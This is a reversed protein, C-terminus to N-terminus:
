KTIYLTVSDNRRLVIQLRTLLINIVGGKSPIRTVAGNSTILNPTHTHVKIDLVLALRQQYMEALNAVAAEAAGAGATSAM